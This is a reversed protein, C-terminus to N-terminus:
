SGEVMDHMTVPADRTQSSDGRSRPSDAPRSAGYQVRRATYTLTHFQAARPIHRVHRLRHSGILSLPAKMCTMRSGILSPTLTHFQAARPIHQVHRLRHPIPRGRPSRAACISQWFSRLLRHVFQVACLVPFKAFYCSHSLGAGRRVRKWFLHKGM